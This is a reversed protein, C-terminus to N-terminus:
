SLKEYIWPSFSVDSQRQHNKILCPPPNTQNVARRHFNREVGPFSVRTGRLCFLFPPSEGRLFCTKRKKCNLKRPAEEVGRRKTVDVKLNIEWKVNETHHIPLKRIEVWRAGVLTYSAM